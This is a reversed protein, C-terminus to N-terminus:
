DEVTSLPNPINTYKYPALANVGSTSDETSLVVYKGKVFVYQWTDEDVGPLYRISYSHTRNWKVVTVGDSLYKVPSATSGNYLICGRGHGWMATDNLRGTYALNDALLDEIKGTYRSTISVNTGPTLRSISVSDTIPSWTNLDESQYITSDEGPSHTYTDFSAETSVTVASLPDGRWSSLVDAAPQATSYSVLYQFGASTDEGIPTKDVGVVRLRDHEDSWSDTLAPLEVATLDSRTHADFYLRTGTSVDEAFSIRNGASMLVVPTTM